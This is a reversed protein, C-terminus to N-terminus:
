AVAAVPEATRSRTRFQLDPGDVPGFRLAKNRGRGHFARQGVRLFGKAVQKGPHLRKAVRYVGFLGRGPRFSAIRASSM